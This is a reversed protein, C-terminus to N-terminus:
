KYVKVLLERGVNTYTLRITDTMGIRIAKECDADVTRLVYEMNRTYDSSSIAAITIDENKERFWAALAGQFSVTIKARQTIQM